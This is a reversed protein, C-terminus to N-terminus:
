LPLPEMQPGAETLPDLDGTESIAVLPLPESTGFVGPSQALGPMQNSEQAQAAKLARGGLPFQATLLAATVFVTLFRNPSRM